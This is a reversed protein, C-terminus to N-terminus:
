DTHRARGKVMSSRVFVVQGRKKVYRKHSLVRFHGSRIHPAVTSRVREIDLTSSNNKYKRYWAPHKIIKPPGPLIMEPFNSKFMCYALVFAIGELMPSGKHIIETEALGSSGTFHLMGDDLEIDLCTEGNGAKNLVFLIPSQGERYLLSCLVEKITGLHTLMENFSINRVSSSLVAQSDQSIFVHDGNGELIELQALCLTYAMNTKNSINETNNFGPIGEKKEEQEYGEWLIDWAKEREIRALHVGFFKHQGYFHNSM